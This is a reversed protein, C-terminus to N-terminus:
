ILSKEMIGRGTSLEVTMVQLITLSFQILYHSIIQNSMCREEMVQQIVTSSHQIASEQISKLAEQLKLMFLEAQPVMVIPIVQMQM